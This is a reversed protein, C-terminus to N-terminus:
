SPDAVRGVFLPTGQEVDHIVFLFPRDLVLPEPPPPASTEGVIVATAAAAETGEEDVAIFVEHLVAAIFLDLEASMGTLDAVGADFATPMGLSKLADGLPSPSRFTWRPMTLSVPLSLPAAVIDALGGDSVLADIDEDPLVVTM